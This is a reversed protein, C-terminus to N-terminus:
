SPSSRARPSPAALDIPRGNFAISGGEIRQGSSVLFSGDPQRGMRVPTLRAMGAVLAALVLLGLVAISRRTTM